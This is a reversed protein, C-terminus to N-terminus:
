IEYVRSYVIDIAAALHNEWKMGLKDAIEKVKESSEAEIEMLPELFPWTDLEIHAGEFIWTERLTEQYMTQKLGAIKLVKITSEFDAVVTEEEKQDEIKGAGHPHVKASLRIVDGEDRVRI